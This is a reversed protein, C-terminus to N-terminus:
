QEVLRITSEDNTDQVVQTPLCRVLIAGVVSSRDAHPNHAAGPRISAMGNAVLYEWWAAFQAAPISDTRNTRHSRITIGDQQIDLIDNMTGQILTRVGPLDRHEPCRPQHALNQRLEHWIDIWQRM